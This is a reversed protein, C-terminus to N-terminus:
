YAYVHELRVGDRELAALVTHLDTVPCLLLVRLHGPESLMPQSLLMQTNAVSGPWGSTAIASITILGNGAIQHFRAGHNVLLAASPTFEQYRPIEVIQQGRV